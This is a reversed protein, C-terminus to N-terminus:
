IAGASARSLTMFVLPVIVVALITHTGLIALYIPRFWAPDEFVRSTHVFIHYTLYCALFLGVHRLRQDHLQPPRAHKEEQYVRLRRGSFGREPRQPHRQRRAPRAPDHRVARAKMPPGPSQRRGPGARRGGRNRRRFLRPHAREPRHARIQRQPHLSRRRKGTRRASQGPREIEPGGRHRPSPRSQRRDLFDMPGRARRLPTGYKKLVAPTDFDPDTTFSVLKVPSGAPLADQLERCTPPCSRVNAPAVPSSSTPSGSHAACPTWPSRRTTKIPSTFDPLAGLHAPTQGSSSAVFAAVIASFHPDPWGLHGNLKESLKMSFREAAALPPLLGGRWPM